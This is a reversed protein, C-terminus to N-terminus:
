RAGGDQGACYGALQGGPGCWRARVGAICTNAGALGADTAAATQVCLLEEAAYAAVEAQQVATVTVSAPTSGACGNLIAALAILLGCLLVAAGSVAVLTKV